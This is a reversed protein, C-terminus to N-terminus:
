VALLCLYAMGLTGRYGDFYAARQAAARARVEAADPHDFPHEALWRAYCASFGSEFEDWEAQGAEAVSVPMFGEEVAIEALAGLRVFEDLRGALPAAAAPTPETSWIGDAFVARGGTPLLRRVAHLAAAYDLPQHAEVPPGFVQSAGICIAAGARDPLAQPAEGARLEVRDDLGRQRALAQGHSVSRADSDVGVGRLDPSRELTRLLLEAWGCGIDLVTGAGIGALFDALGDARTASLPSMFTLDEHPPTLDLPM